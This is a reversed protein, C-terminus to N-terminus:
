RQKFRGGLISSMRGIEGDVSMNKGVIDSLVQLLNKPEKTLSRRHERFSDIKKKVLPSKFVVNLMEADSIDEVMEDTLNTTSGFNKKNLVIALILKATELDKASNSSDGFNGSSSFAQTIIEELRKIGDDQINDKEKSM